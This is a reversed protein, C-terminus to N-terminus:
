CGCDATKQIQTVAADHNLRAAKGAGATMLAHPWAALTNRKALLLNPNNMRM